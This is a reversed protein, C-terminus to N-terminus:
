YITIPRCKYLVTCNISRMWGNVFVGVAISKRVLCWGARWFCSCCHAWCWPNKPFKARTCFKKEWTYLFEPNAVSLMAVVVTGREIYGEGIVRQHWAALRPRGQSCHFTISSHMEAGRFAHSLSLVGTHCSFFCRCVRLLDVCVCVRVSTFLCVCRYFCAARRRFPGPAWRSRCALWAM